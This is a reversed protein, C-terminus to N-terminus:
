KSQSYKNAKRIDARIARQLKRTNKMKKNWDRDDQWFYAELTATIGYGMSENMTAMVLLTTFDNLKAKM